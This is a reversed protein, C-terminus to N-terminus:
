SRFTERDSQACVASKPALRLKHATPSCLDAVCPSAADAYLKDPAPPTWRRASMVCGAHLPIRHRPVQSLHHFYPVPQRWLDFRHNHRHHFRGALLLHEFTLSALTFFRVCRTECRFCYGRREIEPAKGCHLSRCTGQESVVRSVFPTDLLRQRHQACLCVPLPISANISPDCRAKRM